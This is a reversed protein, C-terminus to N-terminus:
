NDTIKPNNVIRVDCHLGDSRMASRRFELRLDGVQLYAHPYGEADLMRIHDYWAGLERDTVLSLDSEEPKRREFYVAEGSQPKPESRKKVLDEIMAEILNDARLFIEEASGELCLEEQKYIPGADLKGSCKFATMKTMRIGRQILNQLPSGGRGYPLDTMHFVITPWKMWIYEPIIHSWHPVFILEPDIGEIVKESLMSPQDIIEVGRKLRTSLRKSLGANWPRHSLLLIPRYLEPM